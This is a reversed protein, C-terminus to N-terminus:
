LLHTDKIAKLVSPDLTPFRELYEVRERNLERVLGEREASGYLKRPNFRKMDYIKGHEDTVGSILVRTGYDTDADWEGSDRFLARTVYGM